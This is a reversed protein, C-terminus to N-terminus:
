EWVIISGCDADGESRCFRREIQVQGCGMHSYIEAKIVVHMRCLLAHHATWGQVSGRHRHPGLVENVVTGEEYNLRFAVNALKAYAGPTMFKSFIIKQVGTMLAQVTAKGADRALADYAGPGLGETLTDLVRHVDEAAFWVSPLVGLTGHSFDFAARANGPLSSVAHKLRELDHERAYWAIFDRIAAGKIRGQAALRVELM